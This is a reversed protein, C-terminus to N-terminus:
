EKDGEILTLALSTESFTQYQIGNVTMIDSFSMAGKCHLLLLRLRFLEIKSPSVSYM